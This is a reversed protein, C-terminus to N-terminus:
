GGENVIQRIDDISCGEFQHDSASALFDQYVKGGGKLIQRIDSISYEEFLHDSAASLSAEAFRANESEIGNVEISNSEESLAFAMSPLLTFLMCFALLISIIQKTKKM